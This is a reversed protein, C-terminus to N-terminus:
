NQVVVNMFDVANLIVLQSRPDGPRSDKVRPSVGPGPSNHPNVMYGPRPLSIKRPICTKILYILALYDGNM